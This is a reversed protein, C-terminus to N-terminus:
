IRVGKKKIFLRYFIYSGTALTLITTLISVISVFNFVAELLAPPDSLFRILFGTPDKLFELLYNTPEPVLEFTYVDKTTSIYRSFSDSLGAGEVYLKFTTNLPLYAQVSGSADCYFTYNYSKIYIEAGSVPNNGSIVKLTKLDINLYVLVPSNPHIITDFETLLLEYLYISVTHNGIFETMVEKGDILVSFGKEGLDFLRNQDADYIEFLIDTYDGIQLFYITENYNGAADYVRLYLTRNGWELLSLDSSFYLTSSNTWLTDNDWQYSVFAVGQNDTANVDFRTLKNKLWSGNTLVVGSVSLNYFVPSTDDIIIELSENWEQGWTSNAYFTLNHSGQAWGTTSISEAYDYRTANLIYWKKDFFQGSISSKFPSGEKLYRSTYALIPAFKEDEIEYLYYYGLKLYVVDKEAMFAIFTFNHQGISTNKPIWENVFYDGSFTDDSWTRFVLSNNSSDILFHSISQYLTIYSVIETINLPTFYSKQQVAKSSSSSDYEYWEYYAGYTTYNIYEQFRQSIETSNLEKGRHIRLEEVQADLYDTGLNGVKLQEEKNTMGVYTGSEYATDLISSGNAWINMGSPDESGDYTCVLYYWSGTSIVTSVARLYDGGSDYNLVFFDVIGTTLIRFFYERRNTAAAYKALFNMDNTISEVNIWVEVSFAVDHTGNTFSFDDHDSFNVYDSESYEFDGVYGDIASTIWSVGNNTGNHLDMSDIITSGGNENFKLYLKTEDFNAPLDYTQSRLYTTSSNQTLSTTATVIEIHYQNATFSYTSLISFYGDGETETNGVELTNTNNKLYITINEYTILPDQQSDWNRLYGDIMTYDYSYTVAEMTTNYIRFGDLYITGNGQIQFAINSFANSTINIEDQFLVWRNTTNQLNFEHWSGNFYLFTFNGGLSQIYYKFSAFALGIPLASTINLTDTSSDTDELKYSTSGYAFIENSLALSDFTETNNEQWDTGTELDVDNLYRYSIDEIALTNNIKELFIVEYMVPITNGYFIYDDSTKQYTAVPNIRVLNWPLPAKVTINTLYEPNEIFLSHEITEENVYRYKSRINSVISDQQYYLYHWTITLRSWGNTGDSTSDSDIDGWNEGDFVGFFMDLHNTSGSLESFAIFWIRVTGGADTYPNTVTGDVNISDSGGADKQAFITLNYYLIGSTYGSLQIEGSIGSLEDDDLDDTLWQKQENADEYNLFGDDNDIPNIADYDTPFHKKFEFETKVTEGEYNTSQDIQSKEVRRDITSSEEEEINESLPDSAIESSNEIPDNIIEDNMVHMTPTLLISLGM